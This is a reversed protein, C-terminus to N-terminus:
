CGEPFLERVDKGLVGAIRAKEDGRAVLRGNLIMSLTSEAVRARKALQRQSPIDAQLMAIKVAKANTM